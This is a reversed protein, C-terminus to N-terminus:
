AASAKGGEIVELSPRDDVEMPTFTPHKTAMHRAMNVFTRNCCPCVGAKARKTIRTARGKYGNARRREHEARQRQDNATAEWMKSWEELRAIEQKLRDRERRIRDEETEGAPWHRPHGHVCHFTAHNQRYISEAERSMAQRAGCGCTWFYYDTPNPSRTEPM